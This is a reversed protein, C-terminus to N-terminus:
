DVPVVRIDRVLTWRAALDRAYAWAEAKDTFTLANGAWNGSNDAIVEVRWITPKPNNVFGIVIEDM